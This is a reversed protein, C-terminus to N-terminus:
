PALREELTEGKATAGALAFPLAVGATQAKLLKGRSLM